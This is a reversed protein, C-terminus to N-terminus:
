STSYQAHINESVTVIIDFDLLSRKELLLCAQKYM